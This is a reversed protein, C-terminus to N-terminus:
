QTLITDTQYEIVFNTVIIYKNIFLCQTLIKHLCAKLCIFLISMLNKGIQKLMWLYSMILDILAVVTAWYHNALEM